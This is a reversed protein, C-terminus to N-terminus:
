KGIREIIYTPIVNNINFLNELTEGAKIEDHTIGTQTTLLTDILALKGGIIDTRLTDGIMITKKAGVKTMAYQYIQPNPKGFWFVTGGNEEYWKALWGQCIHKKSKGIAFYDPNSCIMPLNLKLAQQLKPLFAEENEFSQGNINPVGLYVIEAQNLNNEKYKALEEYDRGITYIKTINQLFSKNKVLNLFVDGSTIVEDYHVNPLVGYQSHKEQWNKQTMTSNSLIVIKKGNKKLKELNELVGDFFGIGSWLVGYMDFLFTDYKNNIDFISNIKQPAM